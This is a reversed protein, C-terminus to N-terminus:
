RIEVWGRFRAEVLRATLRRKLYTLTMEQLAGAGPFLTSVVTKVLEGAASTERQMADAAALGFEADTQRAAKLEFAFKERASYTAFDVINGIGGIDKSLGTLVANYAKATEAYRAKLEDTELGKAKLQLVVAECAERREEISKLFQGKSFEGMWKQVQAKVRPSADEDQGRVVALSLSLIAALTLIRTHNMHSEESFGNKRSYSIFIAM